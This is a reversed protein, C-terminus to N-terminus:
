FGLAIHFTASVVNLTPQEIVASILHSKLHRAILDGYLHKRIGKRTLAPDVGIQAIYIADQYVPDTADSYSQGTWTVASVLQHELTLDDSAWPIAVLFTVLKGHLSAVTVYGQDMFRRFEDKSYRSRLFGQQATEPRAIDLSAVLSFIEPIDHHEGPKSSCLPSVAPFAASASSDRRHEQEFSGM